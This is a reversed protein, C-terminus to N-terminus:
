STRITVQDEIVLTGRGITSILGGVKTQIDQYYEGADAAGTDAALLNFTATDTTSGSATKVVAVPEIKIIANADLDAINTKATYFFDWTDIDIPDGADDKFQFSIPHDDGQTIVTDFKFLSRQM